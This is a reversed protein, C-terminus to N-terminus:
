GIGRKEVFDWDAPPPDALHTRCRELYLRSPGDEPRSEVAATFCESARGWDRSRYAALGEEYHTLAEELEPELLADARELVEYVVVPDGDATVSVLDLERLRFDPAAAERVTPESAMTGTGYRENAAQLRVATKVAEGLVGFDPRDDAGMLGVVAEGTSVGIRARLVGAGDAEETTWKRGLPGMERQMRVACRLAREAHDDQDTPANWFATLSGRSHADVTGQEQMVLETMVSRFEAALALRRDPERLGPRPPSGVLEAHLVTARRERGGLPLSEPDEAAEKLVGPPVREELADLALRTERGEVRRVYWASGLYSVLVTAVPAAVPMWLYRIGFDGVIGAGPIWAGGVYLSFATAWTFLGTLVAAAGGWLPGKWFVTAGIVTAVLLLLGLSPVTGMRRVYTGDLLNELANAHVEVRSTYDYAADRASGGPGSRTPAVGSFPTRFRDGDRWTSGVLVIRDRFTEPDFLSIDVADDAEHAPFAGPLETHSPPGAYHIPFSHAAAGGATGGETWGEPLRRLEQPLGPLDLGGGRRGARILSDPDLGRAHAYLALAFGPRLTRGSRVALPAERVTEPPPPLDVAGIGAAPESFSRHPSRVFRGSDTALAPAPLVVNGAAEMAERLRDDGGDMRNLAPYPRELFVDLGITRAGAESIARVVDALVARPFPSLYPWSETDDEDFLVLVVPSERAEPRGDEYAAIQRRDLTERELADLGTFDAYRDALAVTGVSALVISALHLLRRPKM